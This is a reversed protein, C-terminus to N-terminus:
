QTYDEWALEGALIKQGIDYVEQFAKSRDCTSDGVLSYYKNHCKVSCLIRWFGEAHLVVPQSVISSCFRCEGTFYRADLNGYWPRYVWLGSRHTVVRRFAHTCDCQYDYRAGCESCGDARSMNASVKGCLRCRSPKYNEVEQVFERLSSLYFGWMGQNDELRETGLESVRLITRLSATTSLVAQFVTEINVREGTQTDRATEKDWMSWGHISSSSSDMLGALEVFAKGAWTRNLPGDSFSLAHKDLLTLLTHIDNRAFCDDVLDKVNGFCIDGNSNHPHQAYGVIVRSLEVIYTIPTTVGIFDDDTHITPMFTIYVEKRRAEPKFWGGLNYWLVGEMAELRTVLEDESYPEERGITSSINKLVQLSNVRRHAAQLWQAQTKHANELLGSFGAMNGTLRMGTSKPGVRICGIKYFGTGRRYAPSISVEGLDLWTPLLSSFFSESLRLPSPAYRSTGWYVQVKERELVDDFKEAKPQNTTLLDKAEDITRIQTFLPTAPLM